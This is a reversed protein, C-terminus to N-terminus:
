SRSFPQQPPFSLRPGQCHVLFVWEKRLILLPQPPVLVSQPQYWCLLFYVTPALGQRIIQISWLKFYSISCPRLFHRFRFLYCFSLYKM